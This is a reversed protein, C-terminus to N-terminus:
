NRFQVGGWLKSYEKCHILLSSCGKLAVGKPLRYEQKGKVRRLSAIIMANQLANDNTAEAIKNKSLVLKLDPASKTKFDEGLRLVLYDGRQALEWGGRISKAKKSWRNGSALVEGSSMPIKAWLKTYKECHILVSRYESLDTDVAIEYSSAGQNSKLAGVVLSGDLSHQQGRSQHDAERAPFTRSSCTGTSRGNCFARGAVSSDHQHHIESEHM